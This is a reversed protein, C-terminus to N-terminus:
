DKKYPISVILSIIKQEGESQHDFFIRLDETNPESTIMLQIYKALEYAEDHTREAM